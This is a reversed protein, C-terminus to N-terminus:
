EWHKGSEEVDVDDCGVEVLVVDVEPVVVVLVVEPLEDGVAVPWAAAHVASALLTDVSIGPWVTLLTTFPIKASFEVNL